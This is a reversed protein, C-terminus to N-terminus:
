AKWCRPWWADSPFPTGSTPASITSTGSATSGPSSDASPLILWWMSRRESCSPSGRTSSRLLVGESASNSPSKGEGLVSSRRAPAALPTLSPAAANLALQAGNRAAGGDLMDCLNLCHHRAVKRAQVSGCLQRPRRRKVGQNMALWRSTISTGNCNSAPSTNLGSVTPSPRSTATGADRWRSRRTTGGSSRRRFLVSRAAAFSAQKSRVSPLMWRAIFLRSLSSHIKAPTPM